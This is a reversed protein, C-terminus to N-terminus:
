DQAQCALQDLILMDLEDPESRHLAEAATEKGAAKLAEIVEVAYALRANQPLLERFHPVMEVVQESTFITRVTLGVLADRVIEPIDEDIRIPSLVMVNVRKGKIFFGPRGFPAM